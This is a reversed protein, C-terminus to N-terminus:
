YKQGINFTIMRITTGAPRELWRVVACAEEGEVGCNASPNGPDIEMLLAQPIMCASYPPDIWFGGADDCDANNDITWNRVADLQCCLDDVPLGGAATCSDVDALDVADFCPRTLWGTPDSAIANAVLQTLSIGGQCEYDGNVKECTQFGCYTSGAGGMPHKLSWKRSCYGPSNWEGCDPASCDKVLVWESINSDFLYDPGPNCWHEMSSTEAPSTEAPSTEAFQTSTESSFFLVILITLILLFIVLFLLHKKNSIQWTGSQM